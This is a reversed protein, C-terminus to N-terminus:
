IYSEECPENIAQQCLSALQEIRYNVSFMQKMRKADVEYELKVPVNQGTM